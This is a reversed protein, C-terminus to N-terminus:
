SFSSFSVISWNFIKNSFLSSILSSVLRFILFSTISIIRSIKMIFTGTYEVVIKGENIESVSIGVFGNDTEFTNINEKNEDTQLKVNYGLYYIYPLEITTEEKVDKVDFLLNTGNKQVNEITANLKKISMPDIFLSKM